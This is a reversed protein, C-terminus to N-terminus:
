QEFVECREFLYVLVALGACQHQIDSRGQASFIMMAEFLSDGDLGDQRQRQYESVFGSKLRDIFTRDLGSMTQVFHQVQRSQVLGINLLNATEETLRNRAMKDRPPVVVFSTSETEQSKVLAQTITDLEAFTVNGMEQALFERFRTEREEKWGRMVDVTHISQHADAIQHHTPCLLILNPYADRQQESLSPNARPGTDSKAEIHAIHGIIASLDQNNAESVLMVNCGPFCCIGGSKAWLLAIDARRYSRRSLRSMPM